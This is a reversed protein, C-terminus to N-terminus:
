RRRVSEKEILRCHIRAPASDLSPMPATDRDTQPLTAESPNQEEILSVLKSVAWFGMEYHPLEVSTLRPSLTEAFVRHNDVGIVSIDEAVHLGHSAACLYVQMARADNFCFFGDPHESQIMRDIASLAAENGSVNIQMHSGPDLGADKLAQRYGALRLGQALMPDLSGIYAIRTCGAAILRRTADYGIQFEDPTISPSRHEKDQADALVFPLSALSPPVSTFCNFMKAYVFGDVGYRQLAAIEDDANAIGDTNVTLMVYGLRSAADQAGLIMGGAYPTTAIEESIFGLIHTKSTRLSRALPNPQYGLAQATQRVHSATGPKVRGADRNNLVLSVTSVSVGTRQAIEKMTTM